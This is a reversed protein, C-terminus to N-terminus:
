NYNPLSETPTINTYIIRLPSTDVIHHRKDAVKMGNKGYHVHFVVLKIIHNSHYKIYHFRRILAANFLTNQKKLKLLSFEVTGFLM